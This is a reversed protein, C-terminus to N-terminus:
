PAEERSPARPKGPGGALDDLIPCEPRGDGHCHDSLVQLAGRMAQLEAIKADLDAIHKVAMRKVEASARRRNTWLGILAEIEKMSFGLDRARRVFRLVHVDPERYLRYGAVTRGVKPILGIEEYHRIMKASVGSAKAAQSINFFGEARAEGMEFFKARANM